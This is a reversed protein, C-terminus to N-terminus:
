VNTSNTGTAASIILKLVYSVGSGFVIWGCLWFVIMCIKRAPSGPLPGSFTHPINKVTRWLKIHFWEFCQVIPRHLYLRKTELNSLCMEGITHLYCILPCALFLFVLFTVIFWLPPSSGEPVFFEMFAVFPTIAAIGSGLTVIMQGLKTLSAIILVGRKQLKARDGIVMGILLDPCTIMWAYVRLREGYLRALKKLPPLKLADSLAPTMSESAHMPLHHIIGILTSLVFSSATLGFSILVQNAGSIANLKQQESSSRSLIFTTLLSVIFLVSQGNLLISPVASLTFFDGVHINKSSSSQSYFVIQHPLARRQAAKDDVYHKHFSWVVFPIAVMAEAIILPSLSSLCVPFSICFLVLDVGDHMSYKCLGQLLGPLRAVGYHHRIYWFLWNLILQLIVSGRYAAHLGIVMDHLDSDVHDDHVLGFSLATAHSFFILVPGLIAVVLHKIQMASVNSLSGPHLSFLKQTSFDVLFGLVKNFVIFTATIATPSTIKAFALVAFSGILVIFVNVSHMVLAFIVMGEFGSYTLTGSIPKWCRDTPPYILEYFADRYELPVQEKKVHLALAAQQEKQDDIEDLFDQEPLPAVDWLGLRRSDHVLQETSARLLLLSGLVILSLALFPAPFWAARKVPPTDSSDYLDVGDSAHSAVGYVALLLACAVLVLVVFRWLFSKVFSDCAAHYEVVCDDEEQEREDGQLGVGYELLPTQM